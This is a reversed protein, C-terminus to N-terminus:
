TRRVRVPARSSGPGDASLPVPGAPDVRICSPSQTLGAPSFRIARFPSVAPRAADIGVRASRDPPGRDPFRLMWQCPGPQPSDPRRIAPGEGRFEPRRPVKPRDLGSSVRRTSQAVRVTRGPGAPGGPRPPGSPSAGACPVPRVRVPRRPVGARVWSLARATQSLAHAPGSPGSSPSSARAQAAARRRSLSLRASARPAAWRETNRPKPPTAARGARAELIAYISDISLFRPTAAHARPRLPAQFPSRCPSSRLTRHTHVVQCLASQLWPIQAPRFATGRQFDSPHLFIRRWGFTNTPGSSERSIDLYESRSNRHELSWGEIGCFFHTTRENSCRDCIALLSVQRFTDRRRSRLVFSKWRKRSVLIRLIQHTCITRHNATAYPPLNYHWCTCQCARRPYIEM